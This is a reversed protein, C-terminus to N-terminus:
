VVVVVVIAVIDELSVVVIIKTTKLNDSSEQALSMALRVNVELFLRM